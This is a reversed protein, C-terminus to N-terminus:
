GGAAKWGENAYYCTECYKLESICGCGDCPKLEKIRNKGNKLIKEIANKVTTKGKPIIWKKNHRYKRVIAGAADIDEDVEHNHTAVLVYCATKSEDCIRELALQQGSDMEKNGYKFEMFIFVDNNYDLLGDIDTPTKTGFRLGSFDIIQQARERNYIKGRENEM